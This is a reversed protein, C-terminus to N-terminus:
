AIRSLISLLQSPAVDLVRLSRGISRLLIFVNRQGVIKKDTKLHDVIIRGTLSKPWLSLPLRALLSDALARDARPMWGRAKSLEVAARMGWAVAEGHRFHQFGTGSELAHGVTHGFNLLERRGSLDREDESVVAAKLTVCRHIMRVLTSPERHVIADWNSSLWTAFTRDFVLSYKIVEAMAASFEIDPLSKLVDIDAAVLLPQHFAGVANKAMPHNVATKGGISSDVMALLTTPIHVLPIGRYYTAAAFGAADGIAGGGIAILPTRREVRRKLLEGHLEMLASFTKAREGEPLAITEVTWKKARLIRALPAAISRSLRRDVTIIVRRQDTRRGLLEPLRKLLGQGVYVPYPSRTKVHTIRASKM